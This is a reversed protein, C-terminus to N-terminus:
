TNKIGAEMANIAATDWVTTNDSQKEFVSFMNVWSGTTAKKNTGYLETGSTKIGLNQTQSNTSVDQARSAVLVGNVTTLSVPLDQFSYLEKHGSTGSEVYTATSMSETNVSQFNSGAGVATFDNVTGNANPFLSYVRVAGLFDNNDTGTSDCIYFDDYYVNNASSNSLHFCTAQTNGCLTDTVAQTCVQGENIRATVAGAVGFIIKLEIHYWTNIAIQETASSVIVTNTLENYFDVAGTTLLRFRLGSDTATLGSSSFTCLNTNSSLSNIRFGFGVILTSPNPMKCMISGSQIRLSKATGAQATRTVTSDAIVATGTSLVWGYDQNSTIGVYQGQNASSTFGTVTSYQEFGDLFKLAM